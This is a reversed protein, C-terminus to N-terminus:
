ETNPAPGEIGYSSYGPPPLTPDGEPIALRNRMLVLMALEADDYKQQREHFGPDDPADYKGYVGWSWAAGYAKSAASALERDAYFDLRHLKAAADDQWGEPLDGEDTFGYGHDYATRALARVAVYFDIYAERRHEFTRAEDERAWREQERQRDRTWAIAERRDSWRQTVLVGALTGLVALAAVVLPVWLPTSSVREHHSCGSSEARIVASSCAPRCPPGYFGHSHQIVSHYVIRTLDSNLCQIVNPCQTNRAKRPPQSWALVVVAM